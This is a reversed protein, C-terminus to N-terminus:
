HKAIGRHADEGWLTKIRADRGCSYRYFKYRVPNKEYYDQHYDEAPYFPGAVEVPTVIPRDLVASPQLARKSAEALRKQEPSNAFIATKYSEGRDCFQGGDDTPDVSRWFIGLLTEYTVKEPDYFIQVAERHGTGGAGVQQYTPDKLRGGTYGSVTRVVGPVRDFDSEVCWFCGGAFTAVRLENEDAGSVSSAGLSLVASSVMAVVFVANAFQRSM